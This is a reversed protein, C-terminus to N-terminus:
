GKARLASIQRYATALFAISLPLFLGIGLALEILVGAIGIDPVVATVVVLPLLIYAYGLFLKVTQGSSLTLANLSVVRHEAITAARHLWLKVALIGLTLLIAALAVILVVGQPQPGEVLAAFLGHSNSFEADGLGAAGMFLALVVAATVFVMLWFLAVLLGAALLRGEPKGFQLGGIGLGESKAYRDGFLALRYLAGAAAIEVLVALLILLRKGWMGVFPMQSLAVVAFLLVLVPWAKRWLLPLIQVATKLAGILHFAKGFSM